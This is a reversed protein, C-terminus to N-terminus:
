HPISQNTSMSGDICGQSLDWKIMTYMYLTNNFEMQQNKKKLIKTDRNM